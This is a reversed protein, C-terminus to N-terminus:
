EDHEEADVDEPEVDPLPEPYLPEVVLNQLFRAHKLLTSGRKLTRGKVAVKYGHM